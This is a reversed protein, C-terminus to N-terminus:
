VDFWGCTEMQQICGALTGKAISMWQDNHRQFDLSCDTLDKDHVTIRALVIELYKGDILPVTFRVGEVQAPEYLTYLYVRGAKIAIRSVAKKVRESKEIEAEVAEKMKSKDWEVLKVPKKGTFV